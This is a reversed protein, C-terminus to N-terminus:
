RFSNHFHALLDSHAKPEERHAYFLLEESAHQAMFKIM